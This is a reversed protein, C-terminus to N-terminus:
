TGMSRGTLRGEQILLFPLVAISFIEPDIKVITIHSHQPQFERGKSRFDSQARHTGPEYGSSILTQLM